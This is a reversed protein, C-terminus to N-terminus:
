QPPGLSTLGSSLFVPARVCGCVGGGVCVCEQRWLSLLLLFSPLSPLFPFTYERSSDSLTSLSTVIQSSPSIFLYCTMRLLLSCCSFYVCAPFSCRAQSQLIPTPHVTRTPYPTPLSPSCRGLWPALVIWVHARPRETQPCLLM